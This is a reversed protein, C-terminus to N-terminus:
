NPVITRNKRPRARPTGPPFRPRGVPLTSKRQTPLGKRHVPQASPTVPSNKVRASPCRRILPPFPSLTPPLFLPTEPNPFLSAVYTPRHHLPSNPAPPPTWPAPSSCVHPRAYAGGPRPCPGVFVRQRAPVFPNGFSDIRSPFAPSRFSRGPTPRPPRVVPSSRNLPAPGLRPSGSAPPGGFCAGWPLINKGGGPPPGLRALPTPPAPLSFPTLKMNRVSKPPDLPTPFPPPVRSLPPRGFSLSWSVARVPRPFPGDWTPQRPPPSPLVPPPLFISPGVSRGVLPARGVHTAAPTPFSKLQPVAPGRPKGSVPPGLLL